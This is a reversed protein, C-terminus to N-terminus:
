CGFQGRLNPGLEQDLYLDANAMDDANYLGIGFAECVHASGGYDRHYEFLSPYERNSQYADSPDTYSEGNGDEYPYFFCDVDNADTNVTGDPGLFQYDGSNIDSFSGDSDVQDTCSQHYQIDDMNGAFAGALIGLFLFVTAFSKYSSAM